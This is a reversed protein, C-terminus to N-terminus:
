DLRHRSLFGSERKGQIVAGYHYRCLDIRRGVLNANGFSMVRSITMQSVEPVIRGKWTMLYDEFPVHVEHWQDGRSVEFDLQSLSQQVRSASLSHRGFTNLNELLSWIMSEFIRCFSRRHEGSRSHWILLSRYISTTATVRCRM